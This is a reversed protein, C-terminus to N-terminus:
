PDDSSSTKMSSRPLNAPPGYFGDYTDTCSPPPPLYVSPFTIHLCFLPVCGCALSCHHCGFFSVCLLSLPHFSNNKEQLMWFYLETLIEIKPSRSDLVILCYINVRKFWLTPPLKQSYGCSGLIFKPVLFHPVATFSYRFQSLPLLIPCHISALLVKIFEVSFAYM